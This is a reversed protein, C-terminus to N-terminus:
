FGAHQDCLLQLIRQDVWSNMRYDRVFGCHGGYKSVESSLGPLDPLCQLSNAPIVPDDAALILHCSTDIKRLLEADLTYAKFYSSADPYDSVLPVFADHIRIVDRLKFLPLYQEIQPFHRSKELLSDRWKNVFYPNYLHSRSVAQAAKKPDVPPCVAVVQELKIASRDIDAAVRVAINGGLSYGILANQTHPYLTQIQAIADFIETLRIALFPEPNLHLSPGHDRMHLRFISYGNAFLHAATSLLYISKSCGEWGHILIALKSTENESAPNASYEGHLQIGNNCSLVVERSLNLLTRARNEVLWRRPGRNALVTNVHGNRFGPSPIFSM